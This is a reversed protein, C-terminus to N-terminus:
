DVYDEVFEMAVITLCMTIAGGIFMGSYSSGYAFTYTIFTGLYSVVLDVLLILLNKKIKM